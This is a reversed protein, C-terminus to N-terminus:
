GQPRADLKGAIRELQANMATLQALAEQHLHLAVKTQELAEQNFANTRAYQEEIMKNIAASHELSRENAEKQHDLYGEQKSLHRSGRRAQIYSLVLVPVLMVLLFIVFPDLFLMEWGIAPPMPMPMPAQPPAIQVQLLM